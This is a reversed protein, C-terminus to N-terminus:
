LGGGALHALRDRVRLVLDGPRVVAVDPHGPRYHDLNFTTLWTCEARLAAVLIPLDRPHALGRYAALEGAAPDPPLCWLGLL